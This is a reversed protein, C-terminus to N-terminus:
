EEKKRFQQDRRVQADVDTIAIILRQGENEDVLGGQLSVYRPQGDLMLRYSTIFLGNAKIEGLVKEKTFLTSFLEQDDPHVARKSKERSKEFFDEGKVATNLGKYDSTAVYEIFEETEPNM